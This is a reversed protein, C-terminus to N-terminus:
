ASSLSCILDPSANLGGAAGIRDLKIRCKTCRISPDSKSVYDWRTGYLWADLPM